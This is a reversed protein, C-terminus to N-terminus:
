GFAVDCCMNLFRTKDNFASREQNPVNRANMDATASELANHHGYFSRWEVFIYTGRARVSLLSSAAQTKPAPKKSMLVDHERYVQHIIKGGLPADLFM